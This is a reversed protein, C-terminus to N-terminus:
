DVVQKIFKGSFVTNNLYIYQCKKPFYSLNNVDMGSGIQQPDRVQIIKDSNIFIIPNTDDSNNDYASMTIWPLQDVVLKGVM